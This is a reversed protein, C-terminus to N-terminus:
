RFKSFLSILLTILYIFLYAIALKSLFGLKKRERRQQKKPIPSEKERISFLLSADRVLQDFLEKMESFDKPDIHDKKTKFSYFLCIRNKDQKTWKEKYEFYDNQIMKDIPDVEEELPLCFILEEEICVPYSLAFPIIRKFEVPLGLYHCIYLPSFQYRLIGKDAIRKGFHSIRYSEKAIIKNNDRDDFFELNEVVTVEAM